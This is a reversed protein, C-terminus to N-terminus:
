LGWPIGLLHWAAFLLTWIVLIWIVYPLMLAVVTGVGANKDYKQAFGVVLAFYANLPTISNVPSDGVRYAALVAEPAVGLKMLLPVFIPAFIAWKAIAGTILLDVIAVVVIFGILLPLPGINSDRLADAMKVALITGMNSYNFYAVFQSIILFLFILGGLGSLAKEIAKIIDTLNKMSGAGIGYAAGTTLFLVMILAILGNMFPSNGILAGTDPNRLPAGPPMTLLAFVVVTGLLAFLAYRLGRSEDASLEARGAAPQDEGKALDNAPKYPGLRPEITRETIFAILGTLVVVSAISFWLNSTLGISANPNVLHIADNTFEVLVADLPKILMNVTFASAVGAFGLALGALPHRDVSLFAAGALPILVLYGADAAISSMIGVFAMIYTLAHPPSVLVLKRILAKVLGAEEAVGAGVMAVIMLGVATFSMFNPILREYMFRIGDATLLSKAPTTATELKHTEPNLVQYTISTGLMHLIQSLVVVIAILILFIVAPHPVKNGVKEVVDLFKQMAGKPAVIPQSM